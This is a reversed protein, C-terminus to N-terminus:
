SGLKARRQQLVHYREPDTLKLDDLLRSRIFKRVVNTASGPDRVSGENEFWDFAEVAQKPDDLMRRASLKNVDDLFLFCQLWNRQRPSMWRTMRDRFRKLGTATRKGGSERLEDLWLEILFPYGKTDEWVRDRETQLEVKNASCLRDVDSRPLPDLRIPDTQYKRFHQDWDPSTNILRDRGLVVVLTEFPAHELKPLFHTCLFPVMLGSLAEFDDIELLLRKAKGQRRQRPKFTDTWPSRADLITRLDQELADALVKLPTSRLQNRLAFKGGARLHDILKPAEKLFVDLGATASELKDRHKELAEFDIWDRTTGISENLPKGVAILTDFLQLLVKSPIEKLAPDRQLAEAADRALRDFEACVRQVEPFRSPLSGDAVGDISASNILTSVTQFPGKGGSDQGRVSLRLYGRDSLQTNRRVHEFLTTKGIGGPGEISQITLSGDGKTKGRLVETLAKSQELRGVYDKVEM